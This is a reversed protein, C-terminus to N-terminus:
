QLSKLISFLRLVRNPEKSINYYPKQIAGFGRIFREIPEVMSGEFDFSKTVTSAFKIAQWICLSTAGSSRLNPDGGGLLYYASDKDWIILVGAHPRGKEDYAVFWRVVDHKQLIEVLKRVFNETYPSRKSQRMFVQKNLSLFDELPGNEIIQLQNRGLAKRIDTRVKEQFGSFVKDLDTLDLLQYTYYTTQKFGKWYFPMWNLCNHKWSQKFSDYQPLKQILATMVEKQRALQKAYKGDSGRIWPGLHQTLPPQGLYTVFGFRTRFTFPMAGVISGGKEVLVVDWNENSTANLWFPQMFIPLNVENALKQYKQKNTSTPIVSM